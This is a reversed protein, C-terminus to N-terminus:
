NRRRLYNYNEIRTIGRNEDIPPNKIKSVSPSDGGLFKDDGNSFYVM